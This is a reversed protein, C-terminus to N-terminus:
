EKGLGGGRCVCGYAFHCIDSVGEGEKRVYYTFPGKSLATVCPLLYFGKKNQL